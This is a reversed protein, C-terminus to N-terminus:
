MVEWKSSDHLTARKRTTTFAFRGGVHDYGHKKKQREDKKVREIQVRAERINVSLVSVPM